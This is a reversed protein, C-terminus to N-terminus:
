FDQNKLNFFLLDDPCKAYKSEELLNVIMNTWHPLDDQWNWIQLDFDNQSVSHKKTM